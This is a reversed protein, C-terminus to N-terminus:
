ATFWLFMTALVEPPKPYSHRQRKQVLSFTNDLLSTNSLITSTSTSTVHLLLKSYFESLRQSTTNFFPFRPATNILFLVSFLHSFRHSM